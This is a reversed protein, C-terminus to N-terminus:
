LEGCAFDDLRPTTGFAYMGPAGTAHSGDTTSGIEAGNYRLTLTTGVISLRAIGGITVGGFTALTSHVGAVAKRISTAGAEITAYYYSAASGSSRVVPGTLGGVVVRVEAYQHAGMTDYTHAALNHSASTPVAQNSLVSWTGERITWDGVALADGALAYNFNSWQRKGPHLADYRVRAPTLTTAGTLPNVPPWAAAGYFAPKAPQYLSPPLTQLTPANRASTLHDYNERRVITAMQGADQHQNWTGSTYSLSWVNPATAIHNGTSAGTHNWGAMQGAVGLVNGAITMWRSGYSLSAARAAQMGTVDRRRRGAWNRFYVHHLASGHTDDSDFNQGESGEMLGGFSGVMHSLNIGVETWIGLGSDQPIAWIMANDFYCHGIVCGAGASNAVVNKNVNLTTSDELLCESSQVSFAVAYGAGGPVPWAMDHVYCGRAECRYAMEFNIGHGLSEVVEVNKTWCRATLKMQLSGNSGNALTMDEVGCAEVLATDAVCIQAAKAQRYDIHIPTEFTVRNGAIAKIRKVEGLNRGSGRAFWTFAGEYPPPLPGPAFHDGQQHANVVGGSGATTIDVVVGHNAGGYVRLKFTNTDPADAGAAIEYQGDTYAPALVGTYANSVHVRDGAVFPHAASTFRDTAANSATIPSDGPLKRHWKWTCRDGRWVQYPNPQGAVLPQDVWGAGIFFDDEDLVVLSGVAYGLAALNVAPDVTITYAGKKADRHLNVANATNWHPFDSQGIRILPEYAPALYGDPWKRVGGDVKQLITQGMGAGRLVVGSKNMLIKTNGSAKFTGASLQVVQGVPCAQIATNIQTADDNTGNPTLTTFVVQGSPIGGTYTLGPQWQTVRDIPVRWTSQGIAVDGTPYLGAHITTGDPVGFLNNSSLSRSEGPSGAQLHYDGAAADVFLPNSSTIAPTSNGIHPYAAQFAGVTGYTTTSGEPDIVMVSTNSHLVEHEIDLKAATLDPNAGSWWEYARDCQQIINGRLTFGAAADNVGRFACGAQVNDFVNNLLWAHKPARAADTLGLCQFGRGLGSPSTILNRYVLFRNASTCPLDGQFIGGQENDHIYCDRVITPGYTDAADVLEPAMGKFFVGYGEFDAFECNEVVVGWSSYSIIGSCNEGYGYTHSMWCDSIRMQHATSNFVLSHNDQRLQVATGGTGGTGTVPDSLATDRYLGFTTATLPDAFWEGNLAATSHNEIRIAHAGITIGHPAPTTFVVPTGTASSTLAIEPMLLHYTGGGGTRASARVWGAGVLVCGVIWCGTASAVVVPGSDGCPPAAEEWITIGMWTIYDRGSSGILAGCARDGEIALRVQGAAQFTIRASPTGANVPNYHVDLSNAAQPTAWYTGPMIIVTDGAQAAQSANPSSRSTSGWAARGITAWPTAPDMAQARTRSDDGTSADVYLAQVVSLSASLQRGIDVFRTPAWRRLFM